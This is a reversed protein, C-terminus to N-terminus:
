NDWDIGSITDPKDPKDQQKYANGVNPQEVLRHRSAIQHRVKDVHTGYKDRSTKVIRQTNGTKPRENLAHITLVQNGAQTPLQVIPEYRKGNMFDFDTLKDSTINRRWITAEDSSTLPYIVRTMVNNLVASQLGRQLESIYQTGLTESLGHKRSRALMDDLVEKVSSSVQFEDLYLSNPLSLPEGTPTKGEQQMEFKQAVAWLSNTLLNAMIQASDAPLGALSILVIQHERIAREWNLGHGEDGTQGLMHRIEPRGNLQWLRRYLPDTYREWAGRDKSSLYGGSKMREWFDRLEQDKMSNIVSNAWQVEVPNRPRLLPALDVMNLDSEILTWLGHYLLERVSVGNNIEPYLGGFVAVIQDIAGRGMGQKFLDFAVPFEAGARVHINIVDDVRHSPVYDLVRSYLSQQSESGSADIVFVGMGRMMDDYANNAMGVSKGSGIGGIYITNRDIFDYGLAVPRNRMSPLNSHGLVRGERPVSETPAIRRASGQPLGPVAPDGVPAALFAAFESVTLQATKKRPTYAYSIVDPRDRAPIVRGTLKVYNSESSRLSRLVGGVLSQGRQENVAVAAIRITVNFNQENVKQKRDVIEEKPAEVKGALMDLFSVKSKPAHEGPVKINDTHSAILQYIVAENEGVTPVSHLVGVSFDKISEIRLNRSPDNMVVDIAFVPDVDLSEHATDVPDITIGTMHAELMSLVHSEDQPTMRIIHRIGTETWRIESVITPISGRDGANPILDSGISRLFAQVGQETTGRPYVVTYAKRTADYQHQAAIRMKIMVGILLILSPLAVSAILYEM